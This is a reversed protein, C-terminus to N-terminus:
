YYLGLGGLGWRPRSFERGKGVVLHNLWLFCLGAGQGAGGGIRGAHATPLKEWWGWGGWCAMVAMRTQSHVACFAGVAPSMHQWKHDSEGGLQVTYRSIMELTGSWFLHAILRQVVWNGLSVRFVWTVTMNWIFFHCINLELYIACIFSCCFIFPNPSPVPNLVNTYWAYPQYRGFFLNFFM